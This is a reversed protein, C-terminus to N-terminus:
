YWGANSDPKPKPKPKDKRGGQPPSPEGCNLQGACPPDLLGGLIGGLIGGAVGGAIAGGPGFGSGLVGGIASGIAGGYYGFDGSTDFVNGAIDGLPGLLPSLGDFARGFSFLGYPDTYELPNDGVYQYSNLLEPFQQLLPLMFSLEANSQTIVQVNAFNLPDEAVFRQFQPHYYRARYYYLGTGDNERGTYQYPNTNSAGTLTTKGFPEYTYETQVTGGADSLAISSGLADPLFHSTAAAPVDTRTFYEDIGLGTLINALVTVGSTEQVPNVGDYLFETNSAGITKKQRRGLGDYVFSAGTMSALQNRANWNYSNTGDNTLNRNNDYTLTTTDWQTLRNAADYIASTLVPPLGTRAFTGGVKTRNGAKDYEYTLNGLTTEGLKYTIGTVRSANDYGYEVLVGNPLTFITRRDANDYGITVTAGSQTIQTLRNADDYTYIVDPEM